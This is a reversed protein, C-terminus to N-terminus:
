QGLLTKRGSNEADGLLSGGLITGERGQSRSSIRRQTRRAERVTPDTRTPAPPPREPPPPPPPTPASKSGGFLLSLCM